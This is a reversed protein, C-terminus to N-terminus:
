SSVENETPTPPTIISDVYEKAAAESSYVSEEIWEGEADLYATGTLTISTNATTGSGKAVASFTPPVFHVNKLEMVRYQIGDAIGAETQIWILGVTKDYQVIDDFVASKSNEPLGATLVSVAADQFQSAYGGLRTLNTYNPAVSVTLLTGASYASDGDLFFGYGCRLIM